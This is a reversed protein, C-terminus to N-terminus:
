DCDFFANRIKERTLRPGRSSPPRKALSCSIFVAHEVPKGEIRSCGENKASGNRRFFVAREEYPGTGLGGRTTRPQQLKVAIFWWFIPLLLPCTWLIGKRYKSPRLCRGVLDRTPPRFSDFWVRPCGVVSSAGVMAGWDQWCHASADPVCSM